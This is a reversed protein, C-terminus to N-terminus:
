QVIQQQAFIWEKQWYRSQRRVCVGVLQAQLHDFAAWTNVPGCADDVPGGEEGPMTIVMDLPLGEHCLMQLFQPTSSEVAAFIARIDRILIDIHEVIFKESQRNLRGTCIQQFQGVVLDNDLDEQQSTEQFFEFEQQIMENSM